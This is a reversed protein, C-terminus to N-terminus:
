HAGMERYLAATEAATYTSCRATVDVHRGTADRIKIPADQVQPESQLRCSVTAAVTGSASACELDGYQGVFAPLSTTGAFSETRIAAVRCTWGVLRTPITGAASWQYTKLLADRPAGWDEVSVWFRIPRADDASSSTPVALGFLLVLLTGANKAM